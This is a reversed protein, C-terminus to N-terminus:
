LWEGFGEEDLVFGALFEGRFLAVARELQDLTAGDALQEFDLADISWAGPQLRVTEKDAFLVNASGLDKRLLVLAQRLSQRAQQDSCSGWLLTALQERTAAQNRSMALFAILAYVKKTSVRIPISGADDRVIEVAGLLRVRIRDLPKM